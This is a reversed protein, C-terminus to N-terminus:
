SSTEPYFGDAEKLWPLWFSIADTHGSNKM